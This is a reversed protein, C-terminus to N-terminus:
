VIIYTNFVKKTQPTIIEDISLEVRDGTLTVISIPPSLLADQLTINHTQILDNGERRINKEPIEEFKVVLGTTDKGFSENGKNPFRLITNNDFGPM